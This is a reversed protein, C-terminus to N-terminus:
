GFTLIQKAFGPKSAAGFEIAYWEGSKGIVKVSASAGLKGLVAAAPDPKARVEVDAVASVGRKSMPEVYTDNKGDGDLDLNYNPDPTSASGSPEKILELVAAASSRGGLALTIENPDTFAAGTRRKRLFEVAAPDAAAGNGVVELLALRLEGAGNGGPLLTAYLPKMWRLSVMDKADQATFGALHSIFKPAKTANGAMWVEYAVLRLHAGEKAFQPDKELRGLMRDLVDAPAGAILGVRAMDLFQIESAGGAFRAALNLFAVDGLDVLAERLLAKIVTDDWPMRAKSHTLRKQISAKAKVPDAVVCEVLARGAGGAEGADELYAFKDANTLQPDDPSRLGLDGTAPDILSTESGFSSNSASVQGPKIGQAAAMDRITDALSRNKQLEAALDDHAKQRDAPSAGRPLPGKAEASATLCGNLVIRAKPDHDLNALMTQILKLSEANNKDLDVNETKMAGDPGRDGALETVRSNGHGALMIQRAKPPTGQGYDAVVKNLAGGAADLTGSGEIIITTSQPATVVQDINPDRHFAGNHDVTSHMVVALPKARSTDAANKQLGELAGKAFHHLNRVPGVNGVYKKWGGEARLALFSRVESGEKASLLPNTTRVFDAYDDVAGAAILDAVNRGLPGQKVTEKFATEGLASSLKDAADGWAVADAVTTAPTWGGAKVARGYARLKAGDTKVAPRLDAMKLRGAAGLFDGGNEQGLVVVDRLEATAVPDAAFAAQSAWDAQKRTFEDFASLTMAGAAAPDSATVAVARPDSPAAAPPPATATPDRALRRRSLMASVAANGAGRQLALVGAAAPGAGPAEAEVPAQQPLQEVLRETRRM